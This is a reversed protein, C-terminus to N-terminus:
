LNKGVIVQKTFSIYNEENNPICSTDGLKLKEWNLTKSTEPIKKDIREPHIKVPNLARTIAWQFREDDENNLNIIAKKAALSKPLSIYSSGGGELHSM